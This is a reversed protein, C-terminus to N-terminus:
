FQSFVGQVVQTFSLGMQEGITTENYTQRMLTNYADADGSGMTGTTGDTKIVKNGFGVAGFKNMVGITGTYNQISKTVTGDICQESEVLPQTADTSVYTGTGTVGQPDNGEEDDDNGDFHYVDANNIRFGFPPITSSNTIILNGSQDSKLQAYTNYIKSGPASQKQVELGGESIKLRYGRGDSYVYTAQFFEAGAPLRDWQEKTGNYIIRDNPSFSQTNDPGLTVTGGKTVIYFNANVGDNDQLFPTNTSADWVGIYELAIEPMQSYPVRGSEDLSAVGYAEGKESARIFPLELDIVQPNVNENEGMTFHLINQTETQEISMTVTESPIEVGYSRGTTTVKLIRTSEDWELGTIGTNHVDTVLSNLQSSMETQEQQLTNVDNELTEVQNDLQNLLAQIQTIQPSFDYGGGGSGGQTVSINQVTTTKQGGVVEGRSKQLSILATNIEDVSLGNILVM